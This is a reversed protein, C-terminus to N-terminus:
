RRGMDAVGLLIKDEPTLKDLAAQVRQKHLEPLNVGPQLAIVSEVILVSGNDLVAGIRERVEGEGGYWGKGKAAVDADKPNFYVGVTEGTQGRDDVTEKVVYVKALTIQFPATTDEGNLLANMAHAENPALRNYSEM